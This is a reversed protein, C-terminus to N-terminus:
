EEDKAYLDVYKKFKKDWLLAQAPCTNPCFGHDHASLASSGGRTLQKRMLRYALWVTCARLATM